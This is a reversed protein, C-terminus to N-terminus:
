LTASALLAHNELQATIGGADNVCGGIERPRHLTRENAGEGVGTLDADAHLADKHM